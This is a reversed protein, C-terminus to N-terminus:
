QADKAGAFDTVSPVRSARQFGHSPQPNSLCQLRDGVRLLHEEIGGEVVLGGGVDYVGRVVELTDPAESLRQSPKGAPM